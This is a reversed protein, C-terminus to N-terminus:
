QGLLSKKATPAAGLGGGTLMTSRYGKAARQKRREEWAALTPDEAVAEKQPVPPTEMEPASTNFLCM